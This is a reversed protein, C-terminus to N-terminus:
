KKSNDRACMLPVVVNRACSDIRSFFVQKNQMSFRLCACVTLKVFSDIRSQLFVSLFACGAFVWIKGSGDGEDIERFQRHAIAFFMRGAFVLM